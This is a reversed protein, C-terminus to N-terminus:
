ATARVRELGDLILDLGFEFEDTRDLYPERDGIPGRRAQQPDSALCHPVRDLLCQPSERLKHCDAESGTIRFGLDAQQRM